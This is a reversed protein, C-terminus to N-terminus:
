VYSHKLVWQFWNRFRWQATWQNGQPERHQRGEYLMPMIVTIRRAKGGLAAIIRKLDQYHDDPSMPVTQGYMKYTVSYNFCDCLIYADLGRATHKLVAKAEGTGFRPCNAPIVFSEDEPINRWQKLYYDM